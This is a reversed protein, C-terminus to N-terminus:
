DVNLNELEDDLDYKDIFKEFDKDSLSDADLDVDGFDFDMLDMDIDDDDLDLEDDLTSLGDDDTVCCLRKSVNSALMQLDVEYGEKNLAVAIQMKTITLSDYQVKVMKDKEDIAVSYVGKLSKLTSDLVSIPCNDCEGGYEFEYESKVGGCSSLFLITTFFLISSIIKM